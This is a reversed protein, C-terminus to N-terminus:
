RLRRPLLRGMFSILRVNRLVAISQTGKVPLEGFVQHLDVFQFGGDEVPSVRTVARPVLRADELGDAFLGPYLSFFCDLLVEVDSAASTQAPRCRPAIDASALYRLSGTGNFEAKVEGHELRLLELEAEAGLNPPVPPAEQAFAVSSVAMPVTM